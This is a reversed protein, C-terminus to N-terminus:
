KHEGEILQTIATRIAVSRNSYDGDEVLMDLADIQYTTLRATIPHKRSRRDTPQFEPMGSPGAFSVTNNM